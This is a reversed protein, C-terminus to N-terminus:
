SAIKTMSRSEAPLPLRRPLGGFHIDFIFEASVGRVCFRVTLAAARFRIAAACFRRQAAARLASVAQCARVVDLGCLISGAM